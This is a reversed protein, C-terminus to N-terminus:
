INKALRMYRFTKGGIDFSPLAGELVYGIKKRLSIAAKNSEEVSVAIKRCGERRAKEEAYSFLREGLGRGRFQPYIASNSSYLEGDKLAMVAQRLKLLGAMVGLFNFKFFLMVLAGLRLIKMISNRGDYILTMGAKEGDSEMFYANEFSFFHGKRTFVYEMFSEARDGLITSYLEPATFLILRAFDKADEPSANRILVTDM